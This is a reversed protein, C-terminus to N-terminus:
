INKKFSNDGLFPSSGKQKRQVKRALANGKEAPGWLYSCSGILVFGESKCAPNGLVPRSPNWSVACFPQAVM